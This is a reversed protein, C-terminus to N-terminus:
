DKIPHSAQYYALATEVIVSRNKHWSAMTQLNIIAISSPPLTFSAVKRNQKKCRVPKLQSM